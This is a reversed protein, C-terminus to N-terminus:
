RAPLRSVVMTWGRYACPSPRWAQRPAAHDPTPPRVHEHLSRDGADAGAMIFHELPGHAEDLGPPLFADPQRSYGILRTTITM